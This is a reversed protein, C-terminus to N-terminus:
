TCAYIEMNASNSLLVIQGIAISFVKAGVTQCMSSCVQYTHVLWKYDLVSGTCVSTLQLVDQSNMFYLILM